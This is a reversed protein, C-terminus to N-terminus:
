LQRESALQTRNSDLNSYLNHRTSSFHGLVITRDEDLLHFITSFHCTNSAYFALSESHTPATVLVALWFIAM